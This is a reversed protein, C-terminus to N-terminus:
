RLRDEQGAPSLAEWRTGFTHSGDGRTQDANVDGAFRYLPHAASYSGGGCGAASLTVASAAAATILMIANRKM